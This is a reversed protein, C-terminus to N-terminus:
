FAFGPNQIIAAIDFTDVKGDGNIDAALHKVMSVTAFSDLWGDQYKQANYLDSVLQADNIDIVDTQNVDGKTKMVVPTGSGIAIKTLSPATNEYGIICLYENSDKASQVMPMGDYLITEGEQLEGTYTFKVCSYTQDNVKLTYAEALEGPLVAQRTITYDDMKIDAHINQIIFTYDNNGQVVTHGSVEVSYIYGDEYYPMEEFSAGADEVDAKKFLNQKLNLEFDTGTTQNLMTMGNPLQVDVKDSPSVTVTISEGKKAELADNVLSEDSTTAQASTLNFVGNGGTTTANATFVLTAVTDGNEKALSTGAISIVGPEVIEAKVAKDYGKADDDPQFTFLDPDYSIRANVGDYDAGEVSVDITVTDGKSIPTEQEKYEM